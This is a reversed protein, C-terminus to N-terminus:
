PHAAAVCGMSMSCGADKACALCVSACSGLCSQEMNTCKQMCGQDMCANMCSMYTRGCMSGCSTAQPFCDGPMACPSAVDMGTAADADAGDNADPPLGVVTRDPMVVLSSDDAGVGADLDTPNYRDFDLTCGALVVTGMAIAGRAGLRGSM